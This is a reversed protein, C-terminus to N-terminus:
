TNFQAFVFNSCQSKPILEMRLFLDLFNFVFRVKIHWTRVMAPPCRHKLWSRVLDDSLDGREKLYEEFNRLIRRIWQDAYFEKLNRGLAADAFIDINRMARMLYEVYVMQKYANDPYKPNQRAHEVDLNALLPVNRSDAVILEVQDPSQKNLM